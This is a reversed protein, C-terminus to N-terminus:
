QKQSSIYLACAQNVFRVSEAGSPVLRSSHGRRPRASERKTRAFRFRAFLSEPRKTTTRAVTENPACRSPQKASGLLLLPVDLLIPNKEGAVATMRTMRRAEDRMVMGRPAPFPKATFRRSNTLRWQSM